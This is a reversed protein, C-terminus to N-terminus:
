FDKYGGWTVYFPGGKLALKEQIEMDMSLSLGYLPTGGMLGVLLVSLILRRM